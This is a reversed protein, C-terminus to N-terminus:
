GRTATQLRALVQRIEPPFTEFLEPTIRARVLDWATRRKRDRLKPDIGADLLLHGSEAAGTGSGGEALAHLATWKRWTTKAHPDAGHELLLRIVDPRAMFAAVHLATWDQGPAVTLNPDAGHELLAAITPTARHSGIAAHLVRWSQGHKAVDAKVPITSPDNRRAARLLPLIPKAVGAPRSFIANPNAGHELLARVVAEDAEPSRPIYPFSRPIWGSVAWFSLPTTHRHGGHDPDLGTALLARVGSAAADDRFVPSAAKYLLKPRDIGEVAVCHRLDAPTATVFWKMGSWPAVAGRCDAAVAEGTDVETGTPTPTTAPPPANSEPVCGTVALSSMALVAIM